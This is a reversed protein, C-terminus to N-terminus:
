ALAEALDATVEGCFPREVDVFQMLNMGRAADHIAPWPPPPACWHGLADRMHSRDSSFTARYVDADVVRFRPRLAPPAEARFSVACWTSLPVDVGLTTDLDFVRDDVVLVVHYDWVVPDGARQAWVACQQAANSIFVVKRRRAALAPEGALHWVNEECWFPQYRRESM